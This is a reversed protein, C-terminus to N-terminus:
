ISEKEHAYIERLKALEKNLTTRTISLQSCISQKTEGVALLTAINELQEDNFYFLLSIPQSKEGLIHEEVAERDLRKGVKRAKDKLALQISIRLFNFIRKNSPETINALKKFCLFRLEQILDDRDEIKRYIPELTQRHLTSYIIKDITVAMEEGYEKPSSKWKMYLTYLQGIDIPKNVM